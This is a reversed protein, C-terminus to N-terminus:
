KKGWPIFGKTVVIERRSDESAGGESFAFYLKLSAINAGLNCRATSFYRLWKKRGHANTVDGHVSFHLKFSLLRSCTGTTQKYQQM